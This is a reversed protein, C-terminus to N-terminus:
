VGVASRAPVSRNTGHALCQRISANIPVGLSWMVLPYASGYIQSLVAPGGTAARSMLRSRLEFVVFFWCTRMHSPCGTVSSM